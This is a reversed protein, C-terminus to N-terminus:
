NSLKMKCISVDGAQVYVNYCRTNNSKWFMWWPYGVSVFWKDGVIESSLISYDLWEPANRKLYNRVKEVVLMENINEYEMERYIQDRLPSEISITIDDGSEIYDEYHKLQPYEFNDLNSQLSFIVSHGVAPYYDPHPLTQDLELPYALYRIKFVKHRYEGRIVKDVAVVSEYFQLEDGYLLNSRDVKFPTSERMSLVTGKVLIRENALMKDINVTFDFYIAFASSLSFYFLFRCKLAFKVYFKDM